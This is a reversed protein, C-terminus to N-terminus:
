SPLTLSCTVYRETGSIMLPYGEIGWLWSIAGANVQHLTRPMVWWRVYHVAEGPGWDNIYYNTQLSTQYAGNAYWDSVFYVGDYIASMDTPTVTVGATLTYQNEHAVFDYGCGLEWAHTQSAFAAIALTILGLGIRNTNM